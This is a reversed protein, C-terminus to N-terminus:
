YLSTLLLPFFIQFILTLVWQRGLMDHVKKKRFRPTTESISMPMSDSMLFKTGLRPPPQMYRGPKNQGQSTLRITM